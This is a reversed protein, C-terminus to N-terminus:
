YTGTEQSLELMESLAKRREQRIRNKYELLDSFQIRRHTGVKMFPIEGAELLQVVSPRSINLFDAAEQTTFLQDYPIVSFAKGRMMYGVIIRLVRFVSMPIEIIENNPGILKPLSSGVSQCSSTERNLVGEMKQLAPQENENARILELEKVAPM